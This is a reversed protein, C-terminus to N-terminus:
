SFRKEGVFLQGHTMTFLSKHIHLSFFSKFKAEPEKPVLGYPSIKSLPSKLKRHPM